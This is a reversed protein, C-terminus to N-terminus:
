VTGLLGNVARATPLSPASGPLTTALAGAASARALAEPMRSGSALAAALAGCFADGAGTTDVADVTHPPVHFSRKHDAYWAGRAGLTVVAAPCGRAVLAEASSAAWDASPAGAPPEEGTLAVAEGENVVVLDALRVVDDTVPRPPAANLIALTAAGRAIELSVRVADAPVELQVLLVKADGVLRGHRHVREETLSANAGLAVVIANEADDTVIVSALGSGVGPLKAVGAVDVGEHELMALMEAGAADTGVCGVLAATAGQRAAAVAQNLGKGGPGSTSGTAAVAEGPRPMRPTRLTLDFNISGVVAVDAGRREM